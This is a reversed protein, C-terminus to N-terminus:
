NLTTEGRCARDPLPHRWVGGLPRASSSIPWDPIRLHSIVHVNSSMTLRVTAQAAGM